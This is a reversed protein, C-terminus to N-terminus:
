IRMQNLPSGGLWVSWTIDRIQLLCFRFFAEGLPGLGRLSPAPEARNTRLVEFAPVKLGQWEIKPLFGESMPQGGLM